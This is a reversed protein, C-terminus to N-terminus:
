ESGLSLRHSGLAPSLAARRVEESAERRTFERNVAPPPGDTATLRRNARPDRRIPHAVSRGANMRAWAEDLSDNADIARCADEIVFTAFGEARADLASFAVCFTPRWAAPSSGSSARAGQPARRPRDDDQRGGRRLRFLFRSAAHMGKRLILFARDVELEPTCRRARRERCAITPGCSRIATPSVCRRSRSRAEHSSAFSAHGPPHWDQTVVVARVPERLRNVLPVIEDGGECRWRGARCSITRCTSRWFFTRTM